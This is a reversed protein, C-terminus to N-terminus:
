LPVREARVRHPARTETTLRAAEADARAREPYLFTKVVAGNPSLVAWVVKMRASERASKPSREKRPAPSAAKAAAKEKEAAAAEARMRDIRDRNSTRRPM